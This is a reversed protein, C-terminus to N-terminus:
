SIIITLIVHVSQYGVQGKLTRTVKFSLSAEIIGSSSVIAMPDGCKLPEVLFPNIWFMFYNYVHFIKRSIPPM